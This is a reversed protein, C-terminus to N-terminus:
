SLIKLCQSCDEEILNCLLKKIGKTWLYVCPKFHQPVFDFNLDGLNISTKYSLKLRKKGLYLSKSSRFSCKRQFKSGYLLNRVAFQGIARRFCVWGYLLPWYKRFITWFATLLIISDTSLAMSLIAKSKLNLKSGFHRFHRM